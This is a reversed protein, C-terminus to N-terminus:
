KLPLNKQALIEETDTLCYCVFSKTSQDFEVSYQTYLDYNVDESNACYTDCEQIYNDTVTEIVGMLSSYSFWVGGLILIVGLVFSYIVKSNKNKNILRIIADAFLNVGFGLLIGGLLGGVFLGLAFSLFTLLYIIIQHKKNLLFSVKKSKEIIEKTPKPDKLYKKGFYKKNKIHITVSLIVAVWLLRGVAEPNGGDIMGVVLIIGYFVWIPWIATPKIKLESAM